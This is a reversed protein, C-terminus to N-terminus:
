KEYKRRLKKIKKLESIDFRDINRRAQSKMKILDDISVIPLRLDDVPTLIANKRAHQFSIPSDIIIDVEQYTEEKYFNLAKMHKNKIWISRIEKNAIGAPDIPQKVKYGKKKLITVIKRLNSDSMEVLIDLDTTSRLGGLLNFAMGGVLVYKVKQKQFERLINGYIIM